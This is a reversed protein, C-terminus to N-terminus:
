ARVTHAVDRMEQLLSGARELDEEVAARKAREARLDADLASAHDAARLHADKLEDNTRAATRLEDMLADLRGSLRACERESEDRQRKAERVAAAASHEVDVSRQLATDREAELHVLKSECLRLSQRLESIERELDKRRAYLPAGAIRVEATVPAATPPRASTVAPAPPHVITSELAHRAQRESELKAESAGLRRQLGSQERRSEDVARKYDALEQQQLRVREELRKVESDRQHLREELAQSLRIEEETRAREREFNKELHQTRM